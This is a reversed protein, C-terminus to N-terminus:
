PSSGDGRLRAAVPDLHDLGVVAVVDGDRGLRELEAAMHAERAVDRIRMSEPPDLAELVSRARDLHEREDRAQRHPDAHRDIEYDRPRNVELRAAVSPPLLAAGKCLLARKTARLVGAAVPRITEPSARQRSLARLLRRFFGRSPGDVAVVRGEAAQIAASMEGGSAPPVRSDRAYRRFLSLALPPLELALVDPERDTVVRRARYTSAPHDHVVGVLTVTGNELAVARVHDDSLRPDDDPDTM